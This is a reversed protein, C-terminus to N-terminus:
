TAAEKSTGPGAAAEILAILEQNGRAIAEAEVTYAGDEGIHPDAGHALLLRAVGLAGSFACTGLPTVRAFSATALVNPDAGAALLAAAAPVNDVFAALHLPTFGDPSWSDPPPLPDAYGGVLRDWPDTPEGAELIADFAPGRGTFLAHILPSHGADNRLDRAAPDATLLTRIGDVDGRDVLEFITPM